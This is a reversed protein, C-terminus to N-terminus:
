SLNYWRKSCDGSTGCGSKLLEMELLKSNEDADDLLM